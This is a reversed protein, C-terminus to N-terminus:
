RRKEVKRVSDVKATISTKIVKEQKPDPFYGPKFFLAYWCSKDKITDTTNDKRKIIIQTLENADLYCTTAIYDDKLKLLQGNNDPMYYNDEVEDSYSIITDLILIGDNPINMVWRNDEKKPSVGKKEDYVVVFPKSFDKPLIYSTKTAKLHIIFQIIPIFTLVPIVVIILSKWTSSGILLCIAGVLYFFCSIWFYFIGSYYSIGSLLCYWAASYSFLMLSFGIIAIISINSKSKTNDM